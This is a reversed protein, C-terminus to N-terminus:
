SHRKKSQCFCDKWWQDQRRQNPKAVFCNVLGSINKTTLTLGNENVLDIYKGRNTKRLLSVSSGNESIYFSYSPEMSYLRMKTKNPLGTMPHTQPIGTGEAVGLPLCNRRLAKGLEAGTVKNAGVDFHVARSCYYYGLLRTPNWRRRNM